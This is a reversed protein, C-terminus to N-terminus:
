QKVNIVDVGPKAKFQFLRAAIKKNYRAQYFDFTALQGLSNTVLLKVLKNQNFIFEVQSFTQDAHKSTLTFVQKGTQQQQKVNFFGMQESHTVLLRAKRKLQKMIAQTEVDM